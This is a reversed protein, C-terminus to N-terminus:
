GREFLLSVLPERLIILGLSAPVAFLIVGRLSGALSTRMEDLRGLAHQASFTPMAAIAVSQAVAAQAMIMLSFGLSLGSMSGESMRSALWGNVWFNLQVVAVGLLRPGMLTIVQRVAPDDCGLTLSYVGRQKRLTPIQLILYLAAGIVVGWALGAVGMVPALAVAGFVIGLQYMAPM